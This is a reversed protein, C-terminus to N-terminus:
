PQGTSEAADPPKLGRMEELKDHMRREIVSIFSGMDDREPDFYFPGASEARARVSAVNRIFGGISPCQWLGDIVIVYVTWKRAGLIVRLGGRRLPKIEGDRSRSGEPFIVLPRPSERAMTKLRDFQEGDRRGPTVTPHGYIRIMHSVLPVGKSYRDRVIFWPYGDKFSNVVFPIDMLSQHNALVLVGPKAPVRSRVHITAGGIRSTIREVARGLHRLWGGLINERSAPRIKIIIIVVTRQILDASFFLLGLAATAIFGRVFYFITSGEWM